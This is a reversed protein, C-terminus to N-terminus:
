RDSLEIDDYEKHKAHSDHSRDSRYLDALDGFESMFREDKTLEHAGLQEIDQIEKQTVGARQLGRHLKEYAARWEAREAAANREAARATRESAKARDRAREVQKLEAGVRELAEEAEQARQTAAEADMARNLDLLEKTESIVHNLYLQEQVIQERIYDEKSKSRQGPVPEREVQIGHRECCDLWRERWGRDFTM